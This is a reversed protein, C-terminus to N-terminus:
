TEGLAVTHMMQRQRPTLLDPRAQSFDWDEIYYQLRRSQRRYKFFLNEPIKAEKLRASLPIEGRLLMAAVGSYIPDMVVRARSQNFAYAWMASKRFAREAWSITKQLM